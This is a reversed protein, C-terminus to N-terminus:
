APLQEWDVWRAGDWWRHWTLGDTGAAFVDLRDASWSSAAPTPGVALSGGAIGLRAVGDRGLLPGLPRRRRLGRVGGDPRGGLGDSRTGVGPLRGAVGAHALAGDFAQHWLVRDADVWFLDIRDPGWSVAAVDNM